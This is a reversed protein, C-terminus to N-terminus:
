EEVPQEGLAALVPELGGFLDERGQPLQRLTFTEGCHQSRGGLLGSLAEGSEKKNREERLSSAMLPSVCSEPGSRAWPIGIASTGSPPCSVPCEPPSGTSTTRRPSSTKAM